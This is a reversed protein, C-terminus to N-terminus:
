APKWGENEDVEHIPDAFLLEQVDSYETCTPIYADNKADRANLEAPRSGAGEAILVIEFGLLTDIFAKVSEEIGDPAGPLKKAAEFVDDVSSGELLSQFVSTGFGNMGYYIGSSADIIIALGDTVDAYMRADNLKYYSNEM